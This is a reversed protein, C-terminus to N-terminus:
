RFSIELGITPLVPFMSIGSRTPPDLNYEYFYFLVNRQNYANVLNVYPTMSGWSKPFTRRFSADLRHYNPYRVGNRDGVVVGYGGQGELDDESGTWDLGGGAVYRPTYYSYSGLARTYPIGSGFNWRLGGEWGFPAPYRLVFDVDVRRDFIPAFTIEPAPMTPSLPDPFTREAELYSVAVWGTVDGTEKRLMFDAGWSTGRGGLIDDLEDNPNDAWNLSVVGDFKRYYSEASWFWDIDHYGEVGFQIQDSVTHPAREGAIVWIDLGLPLEEDRLSHIFQTYRGAALKFAIDGNKVFRKVALRPSVELIAEGSGPRFGDARAGIELLWARPKTWRAQAYAGYLSGTGLGGGFKTGGTIFSNEYSLREAAGGVQVAWHPTPRTDLDVRVQAQQIQSRFDTDGFDPFVLGTKFRSFNTRVDLSGGGRRPRTWGFGIADNGWDWDVRLPFGSDVSALDFVDRGTYGTFTLRDGRKTWGEVFTQVDTLNYPFDFVPKFLIDFYSRRASVKYRISEQGLANAVGESVKGGAAVRTSLLSVAADVGFGGRGADSEIDLVSSVRGGHEAPFGGSQLEVRDIMDANFVSFLGGLHFPSFMPIGDLLILNQDQSGGRVHFSASYDSTSVVGPLVEIARVPDPEAVGPIMRVQDLNLERVTAGGIEEFRERERSREAEVSLGELQLARQELQLDLEITASLGVDIIEAYEAYGLGRVRVQYSGPQVESIRFSGLRDTGAAYRRIEGQYLSVTAGYVGARDQDHVGGQVTGLQGQVSTPSLLALVLPLVVCAAASM